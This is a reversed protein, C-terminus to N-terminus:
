NMWDTPASVEVGASSRKMTAKATTPVQLDSYRRVIRLECGMLTFVSVTVCKKSGHPPQKGIPLRWFTNWRGIAIFVQVRDLLFPYPFGDVGAYGRFLKPPKKRTETLSAEEQMSTSGSAKSQSYM